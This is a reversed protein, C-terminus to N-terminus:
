PKAMLDQKITMTRDPQIHVDLTYTEYGPMRIEIKHGGPALALSQFVGDFDDVIGAYSGDVFVQADRPRVKLRLAGTSFTYSGGGYPPYPYGYGATGWIWGWPAYYAPSWGFARWGWPDYYYPRSYWISVNSGWYPGGYIPRPYNGSRRSPTGGRNGGQDRGGGGPRVAGGGRQGRGRQDAVATEPQDPNPAAVAVPPEPLKVPAETTRPIAVRTPEQSPEPDQHALAVAPAGVWIAALMWVAAIKPQM